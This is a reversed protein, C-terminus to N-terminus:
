QGITRGEQALKEAILLLGATRTRGDTIARVRELADDKHLLACSSIIQLTLDSRVVAEYSEQSNNDDKMIMRMAIASSKAFKEDSRTSTIRLLHLVARLAPIRSSENRDLLDVAMDMLAESAASKQDSAKEALDLLLEAREDPEELSLALEASKRPDTSLASLAARRVRATKLISALEPPGPLGYADKQKGAEEVQRTCKFNQPQGLDCIARREQEAFNRWEATDTPLESLKKEVINAGVRTADSNLVRLLAVFNTFEAHSSSDPQLIPVREFQRCIARFALASYLGESRLSKLLDSTVVYPFHQFKALLEELLVM